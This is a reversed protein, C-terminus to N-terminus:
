RSELSYLCDLCHSVEVLDNDGSPLSGFFSFGDLCCGILSLDGEDRFAFWSPSPDSILELIEGWCPWRGDSEGDSCLPYWCEGSPIEPLWIKSLESSGSSFSGPWGM